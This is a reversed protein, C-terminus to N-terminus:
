SRQLSDLSSILVLVHSPLEGLLERVWSTVSAASGQELFGYSVVTAATMLHSEPPVPGGM